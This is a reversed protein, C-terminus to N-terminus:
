FFYDESFGELYANWEHYFETRKREIYKELALDSTDTDVPRRLKRREDQRGFREYCTVKKDDNSKRQEM